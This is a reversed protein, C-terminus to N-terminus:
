CRGYIFIAGPNRKTLLTEPNELIFKRIKLIFKHLADHDISVMIGQM